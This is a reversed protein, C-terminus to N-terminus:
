RRRRAIALGALGLLPLSSPSPVVSIQLSGFDAAVQKTIYEPSQPNGTFEVYLSAGSGSATTKAGTFTVVRNDYNSPTWRVRYINSIPNEPNATTGPLVFQGAGISHVRDAEIAGVSGVTWMAARSQNHFVGAHGASANLDFFIQALGGVTGNGSGPPPTYSIPAGAAPSYSVTLRLEAGEGPDIVGNGALPGTAPSTTNAITEVFSWNFTVLEQAHASSAALAAAAFSLALRPRM